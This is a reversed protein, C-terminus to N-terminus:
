LGSATHCEVCPFLVSRMSLCTFIAQLFAVFELLCADTKTIHISVCLFCTSRAKLSRGLTGLHHSNIAQRAHWPPTNSAHRANCNPVRRNSGGNVNSTNMADSDAACAQWKSTTLYRESSQLSERSAVNASPVVHSQIILIM